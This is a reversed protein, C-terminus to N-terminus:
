RSHQRSLSTLEHVNAVGDLRKVLEEVKAVGEGTLVVGALERFKAELQGREYPRNYDRAVECTQTSRRGGKLTVTVRALGVQLFRPSAVEHDVTTNVRRRLAAIVEVRRELQGVASETGDRTELRRAISRGLQSDLLIATIPIMLAVILVVVLIWM